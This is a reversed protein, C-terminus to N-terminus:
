ADARGEEAALSHPLVPRRWWRRSHDRLLGEIVQRAITAEAKCGECGNDPCDARILDLANRLELAESRRM